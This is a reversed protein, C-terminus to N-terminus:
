GGNGVMSRSFRIGAPMIPKRDGRCTAPKMNGKLQTYLFPRSGTIEAERFNTQVAHFPM